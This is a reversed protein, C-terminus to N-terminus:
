ATQNEKETPLMGGELEQNQDTCTQLIDSQGAPEAPSGEYTGSYMKMEKLVMSLPMLTTDPDIVAGGMLTAGFTITCNDEIRTNKVKLM